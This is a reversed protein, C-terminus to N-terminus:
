SRRRVPADKKQEANEKKSRKISAEVEAPKTQMFRRLAEDFPLDLRLPPEPPDSKIKKKM